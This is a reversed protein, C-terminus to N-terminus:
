DLTFCHYLGTTLTIYDEIWLFLFESTQFYGSEDSTHGIEEDM